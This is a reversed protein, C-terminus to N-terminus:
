SPLIHKHVYKYMDQGETSLLTQVSVIKFGWRFHAGGCNGSRATGVAGTNFATINLKNNGVQVSLFTIAETLKDRGRVNRELILNSQLELLSATSLM